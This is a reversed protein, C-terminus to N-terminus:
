LVDLSISHLAFLSFHWFNLRAVDICGVLVAKMNRAYYLLRLPPVFGPGRLTYSKGLKMKSHFRNKGYKGIWIWDVSLWASGDNKMTVRGGAFAPVPSMYKKTSKHCSFVKVAGKSRWADVTAATPINSSKDDRVNWHGPRIKKIVGAASPRDCENWRRTCAFAESWNWKKKKKERGNKHYLFAVRAVLCCFFCFSAYFYLQFSFYYIKIIM